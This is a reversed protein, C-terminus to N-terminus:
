EDGSMACVEIERREAVLRWMAKWAQAETPNMVSVGRAADENAIAHITRAGNDAQLSDVALERSGRGSEINPPTLM